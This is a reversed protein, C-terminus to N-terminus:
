NEVRFMLYAQHRFYFDSRFDQYAPGLNQVVFSIEGRRKGLHVAKALRLDTRSMAPSQLNQGPFISADVQSYTLSVSAEQPLQQMVMLAMSAYPRTPFDGSLSQGSDVFTQSFFLQGGHWPRWRVQYEHGHANFDESNVYDHAKGNGGSGPLTYERRKVVGRVDEEFVRVDVNLGLQPFDALYGIERAQIKEAVVNGRSVDTSDQLVGNLYYRVNSFKEYTSPPRFAQTVGYRVTHGPALRWNLMVRPSLHEGGLNSREFMGGANLLLDRHLRWEANGFVRAFDTVFEASTNYLPRSVISERRLEGGWLFRLDDGTRVTHQFSLNDSAARGGFDITLGALPTYPFADQVKEDTHSYQLLLDEDVGLSRRWDLQVFATSNTRTRPANGTEGEFGVGADIVAQGARFELTDVASARVDGRVNLRHVRAPGAAGALGLDARRDATIRYSGSENGWGLRVLSDQIGSEGTAVQAQVGETEVPERTVINITGLFARAGYAASNSGRHVEIREIDELAVTQLGPGTGGQMYVSYVSRGDVLVQMRNSYDGLGMHYSGQPTNSEFSNSVRFGPVLRLLDAVDRAGSMRIMQRDLITVSGPTEDLRQPLRSVSLVVPVEGLYDEESVPAPTQACGLRALGLMALLCSLHLLHTAQM